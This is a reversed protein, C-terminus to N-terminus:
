SWDTGGHWQLVSMMLGTMTAIIRQGGSRGHLVCAAGIVAFVFQV